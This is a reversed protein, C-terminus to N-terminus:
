LMKHLEITRNKCNVQVKYCFKTYLGIGAMHPGASILISVAKKEGEMEVYGLAVPTDVVEGNMNTIPEIGIPELGLDEAIKATVKLDGSFGTDVLFYPDTVSQEWAVALQILPVNPSLPHWFGQIM